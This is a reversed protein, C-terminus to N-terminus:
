CLIDSVNKGIKTSPIPTSGMKVSDSDITKGALRVVRIGVFKCLYTTYTLNKKTHVIPTSGVVVLVM